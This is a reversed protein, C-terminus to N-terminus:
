FTFRAVITGQRPQQYLQGVTGNATTSPAVNNAVTLNIVGFGGSLQGAANHTLAGAPNTTSPNGIQTRNFINVFEARISFMMKGDEGKLRFNRGINFNEQPRRAQRFNAYLLGNVGFGPFPGPGFTGATPNAWAAPNLVQDQYPNICGCNPNKLFFPQGTPVQESSGLNNSTTAAPPTLPLGAAYQLLAGVQWDKTALTVFRNNFWKQTQYLINTTFFYPQDTAQISKSSSAPNFIDERTSVLAKSWTFAGNIQLGKSM